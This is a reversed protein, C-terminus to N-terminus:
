FFRGFDYAEEGGGNSKGGDDGQSAPPKKAKSSKSSANAIKPTPKPKLNSKPKAPQSASTPTKKTSKQQSAGTDKSLASRAQKTGKPHPAFAVKKAAPAAATSMTKETRKRKGSPLPQPDKEEEDDIEADDSMDEDEGDGDEDSWEMEDDIDGEDGDEDESNEDGGGISGNAWPADLMLRREELAGAVMKVLGTCKRLMKRPTCAELTEADAAYFESYESDSGGDGTTETSPTTPPTTYRPFKGTSWDRLVLRGANAIDPVGGKKILGNSRAVGALFANPDGKAFAPLNYFLMLDQTESRSAIQTLAPLPDKVRDIRGRSRLLMDRARLNGVEEGGLAEVMHWALAPTDILRIQKGEAELIEEHPYITTSPGQAFTSQKYIASASKQLLSNVLSSKGSNAIGVVAVILPETEKRTAERVLMKVIADRGIADDTSVAAGREATLFPRFATASRSLFTPQQTRLHKLWSQVSERPVSDIKNLIMVTKAGNREKVFEDVHTSRCALPDRADVVQLVVDAIELVSNLTPFRSDMLQPASGADGSEVTAKTKTDLKSKRTGLEINSIGDFVTNSEDDDDEGRVEESNSASKAAKKEDKRRQKAEEVQRREEAIEALIEAKFPFSNPIGPDKKNKSKWQSNNKEDRKRKKRSEAAKHKIKSRQHTTGRKSTQKRIRPM